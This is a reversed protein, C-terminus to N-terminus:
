VNVMTKSYFAILNQTTLYHCILGKLVPTMTALTVDHSAQPAPLLTIHPAPPVQEDSVPLAQQPLQLTSSTQEDTPLHYTPPFQQPLPLTPPTQEDASLHCTSPAQQPPQLTPPTQEDHLRSFPPPQTPLGSTIQSTGSPGSPPM